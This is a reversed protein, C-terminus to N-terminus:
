SMKKLTQRVAEHSISDVMGLEVLKNALLRLAWHDHDDPPESCTLAVLYAEAHGDLKRKAGPRPDENMAKDLGGEVFRRRTDEVMPRSVNVATMIDSDKLGEDAKLLVQARKMKRARVQGKSTLNVLEQREAETLIVKYKKAPM